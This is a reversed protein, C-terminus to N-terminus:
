ELWAHSLIKPYGDTVHHPCTKGLVKYKGNWIRWTENDYESVWRKVLSVLAVDLNIHYCPVQFAGNTSNCGGHHVFVVHAIFVRVLGIQVWKNWLSSKTRFNWINGNNEYNANAFNEAVLFKLLPNFHFCLCVGELLIGAECSVCYISLM